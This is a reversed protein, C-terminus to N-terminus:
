EEKGLNGMDREELIQRLMDDTTSAPLPKPIVVHGAKDIILRTTMKPVNVTPQVM